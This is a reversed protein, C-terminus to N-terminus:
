LLHRQIVKSKELMDNLYDAGLAQASHIMSTKFVELNGASLATGIAQAAELYSQIMAPGQLNFSQIETYLDPDANLIRGMTVLSTRSNPSSYSDMENPDSFQRSLVQALVIKTFHELNQHFAMQRDHHEPTTYSIKAGYKYFINEFEPSFSTKIDYIKLQRAL